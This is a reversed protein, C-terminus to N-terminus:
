KALSRKSKTIVTLTDDIRLETIPALDVGGQGYLQIPDAVQLTYQKLSCSSVLALLIPLFRKM